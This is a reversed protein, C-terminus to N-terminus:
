LLKTCLARQGVLPLGIESRGVSKSNVDNQNSQEPEGDSSIAKPLTAKFTCDASAEDM